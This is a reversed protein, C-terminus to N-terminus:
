RAARPRRATHPMVTIRPHRWFPHDAPLPETRFVDLGAGGLRGAARAAALADEDVLAGRGVNVLWAGPKMRALREASLLGESAADLPLALVLADLGPLLADLEALPRTPCPEDGRPRRRVGVVEMGFAAALRAVEGGIAGVGVVGLRLGQLDRVDRPRWRRARQDDLWGPLDRSLALLYLMVTHAIPVASAGASTTLRVGQALLRQFWPHDVGASFTHLWRLRGTEVAPAMAKALFRTRAPYLDGSFFAIEVERPDGDPEEGRLVVRPRAPAVRALAEAHRAEVEESLLIAGAM